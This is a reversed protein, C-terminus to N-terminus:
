GSAGADAGPKPPEGPDRKRPPDGHEERLKRLLGDKLVREHYAPMRPLQVYLKVGGRAEVIEVSGGTTEKSGAPRYRFLLYAADPDRETIEYGLDVRLYRLATSYTQQKSWASDAEVRASARRAAVMGALALAGVLV